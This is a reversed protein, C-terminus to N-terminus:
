LYSMGSVNCRHCIYGPPPTKREMRSGSLSYLVNTLNQINVTSNVSLTLTSHRLGIQAVPAASLDMKLSINYLLATSSNKKTSSNRTSSSTYIFLT